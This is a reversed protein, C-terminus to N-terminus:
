ITITTAQPVKGGDILKWREVTVQKGEQFEDFPMDVQGAPSVMKKYEPGVEYYKGFGLVKCNTWVGELKYAGLDDSQTPEWGGSHDIMHISDTNAYVCWESGAANIDSILRARGYSTIAAAIPMYGVLHARTYPELTCKFGIKKNDGDRSILYPIKSYRNDDRGFSGSASNLLLKACKRKTGTATRKLEYLPVVYNAFLEAGDMVYWGWADHKQLMCDYDSLVQAVDASTLWVNKVSWAGSERRATKLVCPLWDIHGDYACAGSIDCLYINWGGEIRRHEPTGVPMKNSAMAWPYLSNVDWTRGRIYTGERYYVLGGRYADHAAAWAAPPIRSPDLLDVESPMMSKEIRQRALGSITIADAMKGTIGLETLINAVSTINNDGPVIASADIMRLGIEPRTITYIEGGLGMKVDPTTGTTLASIIAYGVHSLDVVYCVSNCVRYMWGDGDITQIKRNETLLKTYQMGTITARGSIEAIEFNCVYVNKAM